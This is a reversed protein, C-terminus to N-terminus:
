SGHYPESIIHAVGFAMEKGSALLWRPLAPLGDIGSGVVLHPAGAKPPHLGASERVLHPAAGRAVCLLLYSDFRPQSCLSGSPWGKEGANRPM